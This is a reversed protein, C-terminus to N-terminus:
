GRTIIPKTYVPTQKGKGVPKRAKKPDIEKDFAVGARGVAAWAIKGRIWGIGRVEVEVATGTDLPEALEAMLGGASLNRIRVLEVESEGKLRFRADLFMSDRTAQRKRGTKATAKTDQESPESM